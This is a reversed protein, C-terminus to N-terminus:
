AETVTSICDWKSDNANYIMGIYTIKSITTDTPLTIGIARYESGYTITRSIGNDKIRIIMAQGQVPSGSPNALTLAGGQATIVIEDDSNANPTVTTASVVEQVSPNGSGSFSSLDATYASLSLITDYYVTTGVTTSGTTYNEVGTEGIITVIGNTDMKKYRDDASDIGIIFYGPKPRKNLPVNLFDIRNTIYKGM